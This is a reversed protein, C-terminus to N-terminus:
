FIAEEINDMMTALINLVEESETSYDGNYKKLVNEIHKYTGGFLKKMQYMIYDHDEKLTQNILEEKEEEVARKVMANLDM